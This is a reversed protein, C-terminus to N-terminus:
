TCALRALYACGAISPCMWHPVMAQGSRCLSDRGCLLYCDFLCVSMRDTGGYAPWQVGPLAASRVEACAATASPARGAHQATRCRGAPPQARATRRWTLMSASRNSGQATSQLLPPSPSCPDPTMFSCPSSNPRRLRLSITRDSCLRKPQRRGGQNRINHCAPDPGHLVGPSRLSFHSLVPGAKSGRGKMRGARCRPALV